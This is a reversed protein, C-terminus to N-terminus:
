PTPEEEGRDGMLRATFRFALATVTLTILTSGVLTVAYGIGHAALLDLRQVVGVGAPVFLLSLNALLARCAGPVGDERTERALPTRGEPLLLLVFLLGMGIVPGPVPLGTGHAIAEGVLQCILILFLGVIM